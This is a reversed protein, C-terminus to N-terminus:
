LFSDRGYLLAFYDATRYCLFVLSFWDAARWCSYCGGTVDSSVIHM